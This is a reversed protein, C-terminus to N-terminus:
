NEDLYKQWIQLYAEEMNETFQKGHWLPATKQGERLKWCVQQRLNPETGLRVAWDFYEQDNWAIGETIGANLMMTYSNRSAFQEGVKTVLPIGLWLTEMTTTAGNYPYTDLVVDAIKMNARHIEESPARDTIFKLRELALGEAEAVQIFLSKVSEDQGFIKIVFYSNPVAQMIQMQLKAMQPNYKHGMQSTFYVIADHPIQLDERRLTPTDVPFGDIALYTQPLRWIKEPYYQNANRPLVYPDAIFYDITPITSADWGLWTIQVPAPKMAMIQCSSSLTLSDLDILIDIQDQYIQEAVATYSFQYQYSKDSKEIYWKSLNDPIKSQGLMYSYIQFQHRNAYMFLSRTLWGVSHRRLCYSLYGIRLRKAPSNISSKREQQQQRYKAIEQRHLHEISTQCIENIQQRLGLNKALNDTVYPFYFTSNYLRGIKSPDALLPKEKYLDAVIQAQIDFRAMIESWDVGMGHLMSRIIMHNDYFKDPLNDTLDFCLLIYELGQAYKGIETYCTGLIRMLELHNPEISLGLECYSIALEKALWTYSLDFAGAMLINIFETKQQKILKSCIKTFELVEAYTPVTQLLKTLLFIILEEDPTLSPNSTLLQIIEYEQFEKGTFIKLELNLNILRFLNDLNTPSFERIQQRIAWAKQYDGKKALIRAQENLFNILEAMIIDIAEPEVESIPLMWTTEAEMKQNQLLCILGLYWYSSRSAPAIAIIKEYINASQIYNNQQFYEQAKEQWIMINTESM